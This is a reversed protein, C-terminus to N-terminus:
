NFRALNLERSKRFLYVFVFISIILYVVNLGFSWFLYSLDITGTFLLSRMSEFIYTTPVARSIWQAWVPLQALPFYVASLPFLIGPLTWVITQVKPGYRVVIGSCVFGMWWGTMMCSLTFPLFWWGIQFVNVSYLVGIAAAAGLATIIMKFVSLMLISTIWETLKLPTSFLNVLNNNWIEDMLNRGVESQSRWIINWIVLATLISVVATNVGGSEALWISTIGWTIVDLMPWFLMDSLLDFDRKLPYTHRLLLAYIRLISM